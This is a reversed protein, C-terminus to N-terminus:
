FTLMSKDLRRVPIGEFFTEEGEDLGGADLFEMIRDWKSPSIGAPVDPRDEFGGRDIWHEEGDVTIGYTDLNDRKWYFSAEENVGRVVEDLEDSTFPFTLSYPGVEADSGEVISGIRIGVVKRGPVDENDLLTEDAETYYVTSGNELVAESWPGCDTYKYLVAGFRYFTAADFHDLLQKLNTIM